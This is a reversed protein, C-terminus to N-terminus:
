EACTGPTSLEPGALAAGDGTFGLVLQEGEIEVTTLVLAEPLYGAICVSQQRLLDRAFGGFLPDALVQEAPFTTDGVTVSTPTFTLEGDVASPELTMGLPLPIGFISFASAVVIGSEDLDITDLTLGSLNDAIAVLDDEDVVLDVRLVDVPKTADLPVGEAHVEIAGSLEGFTAEPVSVEVSVLRGDLAQLIMSGGGLRVDVQADDPLGLAEVIRARVYDSAYQKALGDGVLFAIVGLLLVIAVVIVPVVWGRRRRRPPEAAVNERGPEAPLIATTM